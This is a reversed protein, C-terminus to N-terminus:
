LKVESEGTGSPGEVMAEETLLEVKQKYSEMLAYQADLDGPASRVAQRCADISADVIELNKRFVEAVEPDLEGQQAAVVESLAKIAQEYHWEAESLKALTQHDLATREVPPVGKNWPESYFLVVAMVTVVCLAAAVAFHLPSPALSFVPRATAEGTRERSRERLLHTRISLWVSDPPALKELGRAEGVIGRLDELFERCDRCGELHRRVYEERGADLTGDIYESIYKQIRSCRMIM